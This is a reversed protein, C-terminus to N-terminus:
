WRRTEAFYAQAKTGFAAKLAAEEGLVFRRTVIVPFLLALALSSLAGFLLGAGVLVATMGTYIPNRNIRFPGEVILAAPTERPEIATRKRRFWVASWVMLALGGAIVVGGLWDTWAADFRLIPLWTAALWQIALTGVAWIPPLDPFDRRISM